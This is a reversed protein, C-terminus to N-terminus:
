GKCNRLAFVVRLFPRPLCHDHGQMKTVGWLFMYPCELGMASQKKRCSATLDPNLSLHVPEM